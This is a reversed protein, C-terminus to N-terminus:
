ICFYTSGQPDQVPSWNSYSFSLPCPCEPPPLHICHYAAKDQSSLALKHREEWSDKMVDHQHSSILM